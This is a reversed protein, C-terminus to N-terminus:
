TGPLSLSGRKPRPNRSPSLLRFERATPPRSSFFGRRVGPFPDGRRDQRRSPHPRAKTHGPPAGALKEASVGEQSPLARRWSELLMPHRRMSLPHRTQVAPSFFPPELVASREAAGRWSRKKVLGRLGLDEWCLPFPPAPRLQAPRSRDMGKERRRMGCGTGPSPHKWCDGSRPGRGAQGGRPGGLAPVMPRKSACM